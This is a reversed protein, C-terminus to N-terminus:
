SDSLGNTDRTRQRNSDLVYDIKKKTIKLDSM